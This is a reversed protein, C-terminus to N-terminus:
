LPTCLVGLYKICLRDIKWGNFQKQKLIRFGQTKVLALMTNPDFTQVGYKHAPPNHLPITFGFVGNPKLKRKVQQLLAIPHLIFEYVGIMVIGEFDADPVSWEGDVNETILAKYPLLAARELMAPVLDLGTVEYKEQQKFFETGSLGTGCGLDLIHSATQPALARRADCYEVVWGPVVRYAVYKYEGLVCEDYDTFDTYMALVAEAKVELKSKGPVRKHFSM